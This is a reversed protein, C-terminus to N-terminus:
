RQTGGGPKSFPLLTRVEYMSIMPLFRIFLMFLLIFVGISGYLTINDWITAVFNAWISPVYDRHLASVIIM